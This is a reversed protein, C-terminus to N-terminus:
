ASNVRGNVEGVGVGVGVGGSTRRPLALFCVEVPDHDSLLPEMPNLMLSKIFDLGGSLKRQEEDRRKPFLHCHRVKATRPRIWDEETKDCRCRKKPEQKFVLNAVLHGDVMVSCGGLRHRVRLREEAIGAILPKMELADHDRDDHCDNDSKATDRESTESSESSSEGKLSSKIKLKKGIAVMQGQDVEMRSRVILGGVLAEYEETVTTQQSVSRARYSQSIAKAEVKLDSNNTEDFTNPAALNELTEGFSEDIVEENSHGPDWYAFAERQALPIRKVKYRDLSAKIALLDRSCSQRHYRIRNDYIADAVKKSVVFNKQLKKKRRKRKKTTQDDPHESKKQTISDLFPKIPERHQSNWISDMLAHCVQIFSAFEDPFSASGAKCPLSLRIVDGDDVKKVVSVKREGRRGDELKIPIDLREGDDALDESPCQTIIITPLKRQLEPQPLETISSSKSSVSGDEERHDFAPIRFRIAKPGM